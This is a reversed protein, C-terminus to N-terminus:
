RKNRSDKDVHWFDLENLLIKKLYLQNLFGSIQNAKLMKACVYAFHIKSVERPSPFDSFNLEAVM